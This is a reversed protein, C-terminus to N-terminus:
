SGVVDKSPTIGFERSYERSFQSASAYGVELAASSVDMMKTLILQRAENLRLTKQFQLPSMDTVNKFHIHFSSVSMGAVKALEEMKIPKTYNNKLWTIARSVKAAHSDVMGIQAISPGVPSRLLWILIEDVILPALLDVNEQQEILEILRISSKIINPHSDGVYVAHTKDSKPVGNPFVKANLRNLNEQEIPIVMCFYPEEKSAQTIKVNMPIEASYVVMKSRDYEFGATSLSVSKAGQPVICVSPQSLMYAKSSGLKSERFVKVGDKILEFGGDHPAYKALLRTLSAYDSLEPIAALEEQVRFEAVNSITSM